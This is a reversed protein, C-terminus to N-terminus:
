QTVGVAGGELVLRASLTADGSGDDRRGTVDVAGGEPVLGTYVVAAGCL